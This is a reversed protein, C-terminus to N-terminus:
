YTVKEGKALEDLKTLTTTLQQRTLAFQSKGDIFIADFDRNYPAYVITVVPSPGKNLFFRVTGDPKEPVSTHIEGEMQMGVVQQYFAKFSGEEAPKGDVFYTTQVTDKEDKKEAKKTVRAISLTHTIGASSIEIKDVDDINPIFVFKDVLDWATTKLFALSSTDTTYVSPKGRIMFYTKDKGDESGILLDLTNSKDRVVVEDRPRSLGYVSLDTPADSVFSSIQIQQPGQIFQTGKDSDVGRTVGYPKTMLYRGFGFQYTKSEEPSKEKLEIETGNPRTLRFYTIEDYNLAPVIKKDRLDALKWHMQDGHNQWVTYVKPDGKVQLYYTNGTPTKDGLLVTKTTGDSYVAVGQARPPALGYQALDTPNEDIVREATLSTFTLTLDDVSSEDLAYQLPSDVTWTKGKKELTLTGEPRDSLTIKVLKESDATILRPLTNATKAPKPRSIIVYAGVLGVLVVLVIVLTLLRKSM